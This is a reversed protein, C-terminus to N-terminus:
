PKVDQAHASTDHLDTLVRGVTELIKSALLFRDQVSQGDLVGPLVFSIPLSQIRDLPAKLIIDVATKHRLANKHKTTAEHHIKHGTTYKGGCIECSHKTYKIANFKEKHKEYYLRHYERKEPSLKYQRQTTTAM